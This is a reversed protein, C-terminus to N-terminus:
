KSLSRSLSPYLSRYIFMEYERFSKWCVQFSRMSVKSCFMVNWSLNRTEKDIRDCRLMQNVDFNAQVSSRKDVTKAIFNAFKYFSGGRKVTNWADMPRPISRTGISPRALFELFEPGKSLPRQWLIERVISIRNEGFNVSDRTSVKTAFFNWKKSLTVRIVVGTKYKRERYKM